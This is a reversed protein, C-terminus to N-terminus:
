APVTEIPDIGCANPCSDFVNLEHVSLAQRDDTIIDILRQDRPIREFMILSFIQATKRLIARQPNMGYCLTFRGCQPLLPRVRQSSTKRAVKRRRMPHMLPCISGRFDTQYPMWVGTSQSFRPPLMSQFCGFAPCAPSNQDVAEDALGM